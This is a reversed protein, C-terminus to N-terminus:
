STGFDYAKRREKKWSWKDRIEDVGKRKERKEEGVVIKENQGKLARREEM